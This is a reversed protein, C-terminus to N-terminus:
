RRKSRLLSVFRRRKRSLFYVASGHRRCQNLADLHGLMKHDDFIHGHVPRLAAHARARRLQRGLLSAGVGGPTSGFRM